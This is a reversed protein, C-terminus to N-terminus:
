PIITQDTNMIMQVKRVHQGGIVAPEWVLYFLIISVCVSKIPRPILGQYHNSNAIM